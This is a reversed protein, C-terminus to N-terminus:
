RPLDESRWMPVFLERIRSMDDPTTPMGISDTWMSPLRPVSLWVRSPKKVSNALAIIRDLELESSVATLCTDRDTMLYIEFYIYGDKISSRIQDDTLSRVQAPARLIGPSGAGFPASGFQHVGFM